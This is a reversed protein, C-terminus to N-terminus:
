FYVQIISYNCVFFVRLLLTQNETNDVMICNATVIKLNLGGTVVIMQTVFNMVQLMVIKKMALNQQSLKTSSETAVTKLEFLCPYTMNSEDESYIPYEDCGDIDEEKQQESVFYNEISWIGKNNDVFDEFSVVTLCINKSFCARVIGAVFYLETENILTM